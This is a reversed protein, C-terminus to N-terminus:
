AILAYIMGGMTLAGSALLTLGTRREARLVAWLYLGSVSIFLLVYVTVDALWRWASMFVSNGRIAVLHPGPTKHLYVMADWMGSIRRSVTASKTEVRLDVDTTVGPVNVTILFRRERPIQRVNWIEGEIGLQGLVRRAAALQEGGKATELDLPLEIGSAISTQAPASSGPVWKHVLFIVSVAFVVVFPSIFLGFYLHLDRTWSYFQKPM